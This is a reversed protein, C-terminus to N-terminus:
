DASEIFFVSSICEEHINRCTIITNTPMGPTCHYLEETANIRFMSYDVRQAILRIERVNRFFEDSVMTGHTEQMTVVGTLFEGGQSFFNELQVQDIIQLSFGMILMLVRYLLLDLIDLANGIHDHITNAARGM